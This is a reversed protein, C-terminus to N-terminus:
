PQRESENQTYAQEAAEAAPGEFKPGGFGIRRAHRIASDSIRGDSGLRFRKLDGGAINSITFTNKTM